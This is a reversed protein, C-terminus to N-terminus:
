ISFTQLFSHFVYSRAESSRPMRCVPVYLFFSGKGVNATQLMTQGDFRALPPLQALQSPDRVTPMPIPMPLLSRSAHYFNLWGARVGCRPQM